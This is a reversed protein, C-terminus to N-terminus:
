EKFGVEKRLQNLEMQTEFKEWEDVVNSHSDYNQGNKALLNLEKQNTKFNNGLQNLEPWLDRGQQNLTALHKNVETVLKIQNAQKAKNRRSRWEKIEEALNLLDKRKGEAEKMIKRQLTNLDQHADKYRQKEFLAKQHPAEELFQSLKKELKKELNNLWDNTM